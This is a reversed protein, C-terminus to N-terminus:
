ESKQKLTKVSWNVVYFVYRLGFVIIGFFFACKIGFQTQKDFSLIKTEMVRKQSYLTTTEKKINLSQNYNKIDTTNIRATNFFEEFKEPTTLGIEKNFIILEKNWINEWKFKISDMKALDDLRTWLDEIQYLQFGFKYTFKQSFWNKKQFKIEYDHALSDSLKTEEVISKRLSTIQSHRYFNYPYTCLFCVIGVVIVMILILFEKAFIKKTQLKMRLSLIPMLHDLIHRKM